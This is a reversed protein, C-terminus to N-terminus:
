HTPAVFVQRPPALKVGLTGNGLVIETADPGSSPGIIRISRGGAVPYRLPGHSTAVGAIFRRARDVSWTPSILLDEATPSGERSPFSRTPLIPRPTSPWNTLVSALLEALQAAIEAELEHFTIGAPVQVETQALLPGTDFMPDLQHISAGTVSEGARFTWFIPDPGRHAPLMSPHLNIAMWKASGYISEPILWPFCSVVILDPQLQHIRSILEQSQASSVLLNPISRSMSSRPQFSGGYPPWKQERVPERLGRPAPTVIAEVHVRPWSLVLLALRLMPGPMGFIVARPLSRPALNSM